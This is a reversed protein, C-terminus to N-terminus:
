TGIITKLYKITFSQKELNLSFIKNFEQLLNMFPNEERISQILVIYDSETTILAIESQLKSCWLVPWNTYKTVYGTRSVVAEPNSADAKDWGGSFNTDVYYELVKVKKPRFIFGKGSTGKLYRGIWHVAREHFIKPDISFRAAQHAVM